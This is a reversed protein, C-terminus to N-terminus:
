GVQRRCVFLANRAWNKIWPLSRFLAIDLGDFFTTLGNVPSKMILGSFIAAPVILLEYAEYRELSFLSRLLDIEVRDFPKEDMTRAEPTLSRIIQGVPNMALPETLIFTGGPKLVRKVESFAIRCDLHHFIAGGYVLDFTEDAFELKHADMLHFETRAELGQQAALKRGHDLEAASINICHLSAPFGRTRDIWITWAYSGIELVCKGSASAMADHLARVRRRASPGANVHSLVRDITGRKLGQDHAEREREARLEIESM